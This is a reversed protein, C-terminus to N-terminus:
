EEKPALQTFSIPTSVGASTLVIRGTRVSDATNAGVTIEVDHLGAPYGSPLTDPVSIWDAESSLRAGDQYNRFRVTYSQAGASLLDTFVQEDNSFDDDDDNEGQGYPLIVNLWKTQRVTLGINDYGQVQIRGMRNEGTTNVTANIDMRQSAYLPGPTWSAPSVTLWDVDTQATWPDYSIVTTTDHVQDAYFIKGQSDELPYFRTTHSEYTADSCAALWVAAAGLLAISIKKM